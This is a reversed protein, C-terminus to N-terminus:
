SAKSEPEIVLQTNSLEQTTEEYSFPVFLALNKYLGVSALM